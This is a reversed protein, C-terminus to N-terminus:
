DHIRVNASSASVAEASFNGFVLMQNAAITIVALAVLSMLFAKM